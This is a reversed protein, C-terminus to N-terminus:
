SASIALARERLVTTGDPAMLRVSITRSGSFRETALLRAAGRAQVATGAVGAGIRNASALVNGAPLALNTSGRHGQNDYLLGHLAAEANAEDPLETPGFPWDRCYDVRVNSAPWAPGSSTLLARTGSADLAATFGNGPTGWSLGNDTSISFRNALAAGNLTRVQRALEVEIRTRSADSFWAAALKPGQAKIRRDFAWALARGLGRGIRGQGVSNGDSIPNLSSPVGPSTNFAPHLSGSGPLGTADAVTDPWYPAVIGRSGLELAYDVSDARTKTTAAGDSNDRRGRWPPIILWPAAPSNSFLGDVASTWSARAAPTEAIGTWMMAHLDVFSDLLLAHYGVVGSGDAASAGPVAKAGLFRWSASGLVLANASWEVMNTGNIAPVVIALPHGPHHQNWENVALVFGHGVNPTTGQRLVAAVPAPRTYTGSGNADINGLRLVYGLAGAAVPVSLLNPGLPPNSFGTLLALAAGSQGWLTVITGVITDALPIAARTIVNADRVELTYPGGVPLTDALSWSGANLTFSGGWDFGPVVAGAVGNVAGTGFLWRRELATTNVADYSGTRVLARQGRGGHFRVDPPTIAPDAAAGQWHTPAISAVEELPNNNTAQATRVLTASLGSNQNALGTAFDRLTWYGTLEARGPRPNVADGNSRLDAYPLTGANMGDVLGQYTLFPNGGSGALARIADWHPRNNATDWPFDGTILAAHELALGAPTRTTGTSQACFIQHFLRGTTGNLWGSASATAAVQSQPTGGAPCVAVFNRWVPSANSGINIVGDILLTPTHYGFQSISGIDGETGAYVQGGAANSYGLQVRRRVAANSFSEQPIRIVCDNTSNFGATGGNDFGMIAPRGSGAYSAPLRVWVARWHGVVQGAAGGVAIATTYNRKIIPAALRLDESAVNSGGVSAQIAM